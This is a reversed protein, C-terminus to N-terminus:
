TYVSDHDNAHHPKCICPMDARRPRMRRISRFAKTFIHCSDALEHRPEESRADAHKGEQAAPDHYFQDLVWDVYVTAALLAALVVSLVSVLAILAAKKRSRKKGM